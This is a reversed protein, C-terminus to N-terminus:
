TSASSATLMEFSESFTPRSPSKLQFVGCLREAHSVTPQFMFVLGPACYWKGKMSASTTSQDAFKILLSWVM